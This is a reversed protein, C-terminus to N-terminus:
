ELNQYTLIKKSKQLDAFISKYASSVIKNRYQKEDDDLKFEFGDADMAWKEYTQKKETEKRYIYKAYDARIIDQEEQIDNYSQANKQVKQIDMDVNSGMSANIKGYKEKLSNLEEPHYEAVDQLNKNGLTTFVKMMDKTFKTSKTKEALRAMDVCINRQETLREDITM